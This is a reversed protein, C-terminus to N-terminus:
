LNKRQEVSVIISSMLVFGINITNLHNAIINLRSVYAVHILFEM